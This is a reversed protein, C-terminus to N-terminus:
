PESTGVIGSVAVVVEVEPGLIVVIVVKGGVVVGCAGNGEPRYRTM